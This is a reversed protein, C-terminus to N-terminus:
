SCLFASTSPQPSRQVQFLRPPQATGTHLEQARHLISHAQLPSSSAGTRQAKRGKPEPISLHWRAGRLGEGAGQGVCSKGAPLCVQQKVLSVSLQRKEKEEELNGRPTTASIVSSSRSSDCQCRATARGPSKGHKQQLSSCRWLTQPTIASHRLLPLLGSMWGKACLM